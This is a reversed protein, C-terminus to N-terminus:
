NNSTPTQGIIIDYSMTPFEMTTNGVTALYQYKESVWTTLTYFKSTPLNRIIFQGNNDTYAQEDIGNFVEPLEKLKVIAGQHPSGDFNKVTVIYTFKKTQNSSTTLNGNASDVGGNNMKNEPSVVPTSSPTRAIENMQTTTPAIPSLSNERKSQENLNNQRTRETLLDQMKALQSKTEEKVPPNYILIGFILVASSGLLILALFFVFIKKRQEM